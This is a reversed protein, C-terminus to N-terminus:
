ADDPPRATAETDHREASTAATRIERVVFAPKEQLSDLIRILYEGIIGLTILTLGGFVLNLSVLSAWGPEQIYGLIRRILVYVAFLLGACAVMAGFGGVCRLLLNSNGIVLNSFQRLRRYLSFRSRGHASPQHEIPVPMFDTTIHALMAPIFPKHPNLDILARVVPESILKFPSMRCPLGLIIRDFRSKIWSTAVVLPSHRRSTFQAVVVDHSEEAILQPIDEPRQQLDDDITIVWRGRAQRLGCLIASAKGYNRTLRIATVHGPFRANLNLLTSWTSPATSGDDVLIIEFPERVTRTFVAVTRETLQTVSESSQFVPVVVTYRPRASAQRSDSM